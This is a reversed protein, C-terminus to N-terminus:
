KELFRYFRKSYNTSEPDKFYLKANTLTIWNVLDTSAEVQHTLAIDAPLAYGFNPDTPLSVVAPSATTDSAYIPSTTDTETDFSTIAPQSLALEATDDLPAFSWNFVDHNYHDAGTAATFGVWARGDEPNMVKALNVYVTMLPNELDDLFVRLNGPAYLIKATHIKEDAFVV